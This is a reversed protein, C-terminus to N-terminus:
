GDSSMDAEEHWPCTARRKYLEAELHAREEPGLAVGLARELAKRELALRLCERAPGIYAGRGPAKGRWDVSIAGDPGRVIRVLDRKPRVQRCAVCTREPVHKPSM